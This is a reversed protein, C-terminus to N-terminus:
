LRKFRLISFADVGSGILFADVMEGFRGLSGIVQGRGVAESLFVAPTGGGGLLSGILHGRGVLFYLRCLPLAHPSSGQRLARSLGGPPYAIRQNKGAQSLTPLQQPLGRASFGELATM